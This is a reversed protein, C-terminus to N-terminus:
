VKWLGPIKGGCVYTIKSNTNPPIDEKLVPYLAQLDEFLQQLEALIAEETRRSM